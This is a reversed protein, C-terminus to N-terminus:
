GSRRIPWGSRCAPSSCLDVCGFGLRAFGCIAWPCALADWLDFTWRYHVGLKPLAASAQSLLTGSQSAHDPQGTIRQRLYAILAEDDGSFLYGQERLYRALCAEFCDNAGEQAGPPDGAHRYIQSVHRWRPSWSM